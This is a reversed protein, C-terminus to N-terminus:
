CPRTPSAACAPWCRGSQMPADPQCRVGALVTWEPNAAPDAFWARLRLVQEAAAALRPRLAAGGLVLAGCLILLLAILPVVLRSRAQRRRTIVPM